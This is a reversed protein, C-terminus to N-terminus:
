HCHWHWLAALYAFNLDLVVYGWRPVFMLVCVSPRVHVLLLDDDNNFIEM